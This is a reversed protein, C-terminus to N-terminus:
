VTVAESAQPADAVSLICIVTFGVGVDVKAACLGIQAPSGLVMVNLPFECLPVIFQFKLPAVMREPDGTFLV